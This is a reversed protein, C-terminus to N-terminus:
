LAVLLAAIVMMVAVVSAKMNNASNEMSDAQLNSVGASTEFPTFGQTSTRTDTTPNPDVFYFYSAATVTKADSWISGDAHQQLYQGNSNALITAPTGAASPGTGNVFTVTYFEWGSPSGRNFKFPSGGRSNDSMFQLMIESQIAVLKANAGYQPVITFMESYSLNAQSVSAVLNDNPTNISWYLGNKARIAVRYNNDIKTQPWAGQCPTVIAGEGTIPNCGPLHPIRHNIGLDEYTRLHKEILCSQDPNTSKVYPTFPKCNQPSNGFNTNSIDCSPDQIAQQMIKPDWGNLFDGHLGNGTTDGNSWLFPQVGNGHPFSSVSFLLEFFVGPIRVPYGAPCNGGDPAEIPYSMHSFHDASDLDKGNWCMPFWVQARLGNDCVRTATPFEGTEPGSSTSSLCAYSIAKQSVISANYTRRTPSGAVIRLGPPIAQWAPNAQAGSGQRSPYYVTLGGQPVLSLSKNPWQYYLDPVWYVSKDITISCTTCNSNFIQGFYDIPATSKNGFDFASGGFVKHSHQALSGPNVIPDARGRFLPTGQCFVKWLPAALACSFLTCVVVLVVFKM